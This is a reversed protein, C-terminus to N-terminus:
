YFYDDAGGRLVALALPAEDDWPKIGQCLLEEVDSSSFGLMGGDDSDSDFMTSGKLGQAMRCGTAHIMNYRRSVALDLDSDLGGFCVLRKM